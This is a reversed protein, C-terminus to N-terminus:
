WVKLLFIDKLVQRILKMDRLRQYRVPPQSEASRISIYNSGVNEIALRSQATTLCDEKIEMAATISLILKHAPPYIYDENDLINETKEIHMLLPSQDSNPLALGIPVRYLNNQSHFSVERPGLLSALEELYGLTANSFSLDPHRVVSSKFNMDVNSIELCRKGDSTLGNKPLLRYVNSGTTHLQLKENQLTIALEELNTVKSVVQSKQKNEAGVNCFIHNFSTEIM